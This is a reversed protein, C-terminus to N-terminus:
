LDKNELYKNILEYSPILIGSFIISRLFCYRYGSWLNGMKYAELYSIKNNHQVRTKIVDIPYSSTWSVLGTIMGTIFPNNIKDKIGYYTGFWFSSGIIERMMTSYFGRLLNLKKFNNKKAFQRRVKYMEFPNVLPAFVLGTLAGSVFGEKYHKSIESHVGFFYGNLIAGSVLPYSLGYYLRSFKLNKFDIKQNNQNITKITDLPHTVITALSGSLFGSVTENM